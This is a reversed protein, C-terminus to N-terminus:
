HNQVQSTQTQIEHIGERRCRGCVNAKRKKSGGCMPCRRSSKHVAIPQKIAYLSISIHAVNKGTMSRSIGLVGARVERVFWTRGRYPNRLAKERRVVRVKQGVVVDPWPSDDVDRGLGILDAVESVTMAFAQENTVHVVRVKRDDKLYSDRWEDKKKQQETFHYGGDIEVCLKLPVLYFDTIAFGNGGIFAKQFQYHVKLKKLKAMFALEAGTARQRLIIKRKDALSSKTRVNLDLKKRGM